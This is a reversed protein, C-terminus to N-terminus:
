HSQHKAGFYAAIKQSFGGDLSGDELTIVVRYKEAIADLMESDFELSKSLLNIITPDIELEIMKESAQKALDIFQGLALM